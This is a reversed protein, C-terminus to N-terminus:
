LASLKMALRLLVCVGLYLAYHFFGSGVDLDLTGFATLSGIVLPPAALAVWHWAEMAASDGVLFHQLAWIAGWLGAYVAACIAVRVLLESGQYPELEQNRLFSYGGVVL